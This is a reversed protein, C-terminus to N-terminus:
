LIFYNQLNRRTHIYIYIKKWFSMRPRGSGTEGKRGRSRQLNIVKINVQLGWFLMNVAVEGQETNLMMRAEWSISNGQNFDMSQKKSERKNKTTQLQFM